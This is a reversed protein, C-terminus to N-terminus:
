VGPLIVTFTSGIGPTSEVKIDGGNARVFEYCLLLGLGVGKEGKTGYSVNDLASTFLKNKQEASM